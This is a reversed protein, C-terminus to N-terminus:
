DATTSKKLEYFTVFNKQSARKSSYNLFFNINLILIKLFVIQDCVLQKQRDNYDMQGILDSRYQHVKERSQLWQDIERQKHFEIEKNFQVREREIEIERAQNRLVKEEIQRRREALTKELILKREMKQAKYKTLQRQLERESDEEIIAELERERRKEEEHLEQLYRRYYQQEVMLDHKRQAREEDENQFSILSDELCKLDFANEEQLLRKENIL